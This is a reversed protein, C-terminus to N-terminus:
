LTVKLTHELFNIIRNVLKHFDSLQDDSVTDSPWDSTHRVYRLYPYSNAPIGRPRGNRGQAKMGSLQNEFQTKLANIVPQYSGVHIGTRHLLQPLDHGSNSGGSVLGLRQKLSLELLVCDNYAAALTDINQVKRLSRFAKRNFDYEMTSWPHLRLISADM